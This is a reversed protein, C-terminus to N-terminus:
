DPFQDFTEATLGTEYWGARESWFINDQPQLESEQDLSGAPIVVRSSTKSHHPLGSGCIRCFSKSFDRRSDSYQSIYEEGSTIQLNEPLAFLNSAHASGTIKRCQLCHCLHFSEFDDVVEFSVAGCLCSGSIKSM